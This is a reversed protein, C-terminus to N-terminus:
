APALEFRGAVVGRVTLDEDIEEWRLAAGGLEFSVKKLEEDSAERLRRFRAAPFSFIRGDHLELFVNRGDIWARLALVEKPLEVTATFNM